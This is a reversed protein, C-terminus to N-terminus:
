MYMYMYMVNYGTCACVTYFVVMRIGHVNTRNTDANSLEDDTDLSNQVDEGGPSRVDEM